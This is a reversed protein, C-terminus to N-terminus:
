KVRMLTLPGRAARFGLGASLVDLNQVKTFNTSVNDHFGLRQSAIAQKARYVQGIGGEPVSRERQHLLWIRRAARVREAERIAIVATEATV